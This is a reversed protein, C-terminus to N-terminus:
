LCAHQKASCLARVRAHKQLSAWGGGGENGFSDSVGLPGGEGLVPGLPRAEDSTFARLLVRGRIMLGQTKVYCVCM